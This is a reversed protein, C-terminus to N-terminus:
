REGTLWRDLLALRMRSTPHLPAFAADDRRAAEISSGMNLFAIEAAEHHHSPRPPGAWAAQIESAQMPVSLWALLALNLSDIELLVGIIRVCAADLTLGFEERFGRLAVSAPSEPSGDSGATMQEEFSMSWHLPAYGVTASRRAALVKGDATTVIAHVVALGPMSSRGLPPPLRFGAADIASIREPHNRAVHHFTRGIEWSSDALSVVCRTGSSTVGAIRFKKELEPGSDLREFPRLLTVLESHVLEDTQQVEIEFAGPAEALVLVAANADLPLDREWEPSLALASLAGASVDRGSMRAQRAARLLVVRRAARETASVRHMAGHMADICAARVEAAVDTELLEAALAWFTRPEDLMGLCRAVPCRVGTQDHDLAGILATVVRPSPRHGAYIQGEITRAAQEVIQWDSYRKEGRADLEHVQLEAIIDDDTLEPIPVAGPLHHCLSEAAHRRLRGPLHSSAVATRLLDLAAPRNFSRLARLAYGLVDLDDRQSIRRQTFEVLAKCASDDDYKALAEVLRGRLKWTELKSALRPVVTVADERRGAALARFASALTSAAEQTLRPPDVSSGSDTSGEPLSPSIEDTRFVDLIYPLFVDLREQLAYTSAWARANYPESKWNKRDSIKLFTGFIEEVITTREFEAATAALMAVVSAGCDEDIREYVRARVSDPEELLRRAINFADFLDHALRVSRTQPRMLVWREAALREILKTVQGGFRAELDAIGVDLSMARIQLLALERLFDRALAGGVAIPPVETLTKWARDLFRVDDTPIEGWRDVYRIALDLFIPRRLLPNAMAEPRFGDSIVRAVTAEPLQEVFEFPLSVHRRYAQEWVEPRCTVITSAARTLRELSRAYTPYDFGEGPAMQDLADAILLVRIGHERRVRALHDQLSEVSAAGLEAALAAGGDELDREKLLIPFARERGVEGHLYRGLIDPKILADAIRAAITSKGAGGPGVLAVGSHTEISELYGHWLEGWFDIRRGTSAIWSETEKLRRELARELPVRLLAARLRSAVHPTAPITRSGDIRQIRNDGLLRAAAGPDFELPVVTLKNAAALHLEHQIFAPHDAAEATALLVVIPARTASLADDLEQAWEVGGPLKRDVFVTLGMGTVLALIADCLDTNRRSYSIFVDMGPLLRMASRFVFLDREIASDARRPRRSSLNCRFPAPAARMSRSPAGRTLM